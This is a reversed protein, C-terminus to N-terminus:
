QPASVSEPLQLRDDARTLLSMHRKHVTEIKKPDHSLWIFALHM